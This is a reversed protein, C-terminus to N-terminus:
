VRFEYSLEVVSILLVEDVARVGLFVPMERGKVLLLWVWGLAMQLDIVCSSSILGWRYLRLTGPFPEQRFAVLEDDAVMVVNAPCAAGDGVWGPMEGDQLLYLWAWSPICHPCNAFALPMM